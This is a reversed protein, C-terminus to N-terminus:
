TDVQSAGIISAQHWTIILCSTPNFGVLEPNSSAVVFAVRELLASDQSTRYYVAGSSRFDFDAWLPAILPIALSSYLTRRHLEPPAEFSFFGNTSIQVFYLYYIVCVCWVCHRQM